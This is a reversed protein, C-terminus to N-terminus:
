RSTLGVCQPHDLQTSFRNESLSASLGCTAALLIAARPLVLRSLPRNHEFCPNSISLQPQTGDEAQETAPKHSRYGSTALPM